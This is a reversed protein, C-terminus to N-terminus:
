WSNLPINNGDNYKNTGFMVLDAIQWFFLGFCFLCFLSAICTELTGKRENNEENLDRFNQYENKSENYKYKLIGYFICLMCSLVFKLLGMLLRGAYIHGIGSSLFFELLFATM